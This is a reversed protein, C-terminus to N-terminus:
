WLRDCSFYNFISENFRVSELLGLFNLEPDIDIKWKFSQLFIMFVMYQLLDLSNIPKWIMKSGRHVINYTIINLKSVM